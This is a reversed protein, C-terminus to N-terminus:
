VWVQPLKLEFFDSQHPNEIQAALVTSGAVDLNV